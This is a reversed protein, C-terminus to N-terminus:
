RSRVTRQCDQSFQDFEIISPRREVKQGKEKIRSTEGSDFLPNNIRIHVRQIPSLDGTYQVHM